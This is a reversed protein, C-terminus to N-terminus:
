QAWNGGLAACMDFSKQVPSVDRSVLEATVVVRRFCGWGTWSTRFGNVRDFSEFTSEPDYVIRYTVRSISALVEPPAAIWVYFRREVMPKDSDAYRQIRGTRSESAGLRMSSVINKRYAEPDIRVPASETSRAGPQSMLLPAQSVRIEERAKDENPLPTVEVFSVIDAVGGNEKLALVHGGPTQFSQCPPAGSEDDCLRVQYGPAVMLTTATDNKLSKFDGRNNRYTGPYFSQCAGEYNEHDYVTVVGDGCQFEADCACKLTSGNMLKIIDPVSLVVPGIKIDGVLSAAFAKSADGGEDALGRCHERSKILNKGKALWVVGRAQWYLPSVYHPFCISQASGPVVLTTMGVLGIVCLRLRTGM